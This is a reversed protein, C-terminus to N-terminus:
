SARQSQWWTLVRERDFPWGLEVGGGEEVVVPIRLGYRSILLEDDAIDVIRLQAEAGLAAYIIHEAQDCLHCGLTSYLIIM